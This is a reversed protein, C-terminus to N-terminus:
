PEAQMSRVFSFIKGITEQEITGSWAPMGKDLRGELVTQCFVKPMREGYRINMRRVDLHRAGTQANPAHCRSCSQNFLGRGEEIGAADVKLAATTEQCRILAAELEANREIPIGASAAPGGAGFAALLAIGPLMSLRM